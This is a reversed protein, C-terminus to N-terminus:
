GNEIGNGSIAIRQKRMRLREYTLLYKAVTESWRVLMAKERVVRGMEARRVPSALLDNLINALAKADDPNDLVAFSEGFSKVSGVNRSIVIPLGSAMAELVVLPHAEYRSPFCFLDVSRMLAPIRDTKGLFHVRSEIGLTRALMPAPSGEVTGAVALHLSPVKVMAQLLTGINKRPTRIDGVFVAMPVGDPLHFSLREAAGPFFEETDVGNYIVEVRERSVGLDIVDEAVVESVAIIHRASRFATREWRSNLFSFSRQYLMYPKMSSGFPYYPSRMWSSHVFHAAVIDCPEWTIFGNAQVLDVKWRHKRLWHASDSAFAFNRALQTPLKECGINVLTANPHQSLESACHATLLTLHHGSNLAASAIEYNVRGQGDNKQFRNAILALRLPSSQSIVTTESVESICIQSLNM